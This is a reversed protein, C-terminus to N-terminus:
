SYFNDVKLSNPNYIISTTFDRFNSDLINLYQLDFKVFSITSAGDGFVSRFYIYELEFTEPLLRRLKSEHWKLSLLDLNIVWVILISGRVSNSNRLNEVEHM